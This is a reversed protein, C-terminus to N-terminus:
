QQRAGHIDEVTPPREFGTLSDGVRYVSVHRDDNATRVLLRGLQGGDVYWPRHSYRALEVPRSPDDLRLVRGGHGPGRVYVARGAHPLKAQVVGRVHSDAIRNPQRWAQAGSSDFVTLGEGTGIVILEGATAISNTAEIDVTGISRGRDDIVELSRDRAVYTFRGRRVADRVAAASDRNARETLRLAAWEPVGHWATSRRLSLRQPRSPDGLSYAAIGADTAVFVTPAGHYQVFSLRDLMGDLAITGVWVLLVQKMTVSERPRTGRAVPQELPSGFEGTPVTMGARAIVLGGGGSHEVIATARAFEREDAFATVLELGREDRLLFAEGERMGSITVAWSQAVEEEPPPDILWEPNLVHLHDWMSDFKLCHILKRVKFAGQEFPDDLNKPPPPPPPITILRAGDTTLVLVKCPYHMTEPPPFPIFPAESHFGPKLPLRVTIKIPHWELEEYQGLPDDLIQV